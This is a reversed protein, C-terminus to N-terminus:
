EARLKRAGLGRGKASVLVPIPNILFAAGVPLREMRNSLERSVKKIERMENGRRTEEKRGKTGRMSSHAFARTLNM